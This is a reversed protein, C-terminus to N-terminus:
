KKKDKPLEPLLDARKYLKTMKLNAGDLKTDGVGTRYFEAGYLNSRSLDTRVLKSKRLSGQFLNIEKLDSDSLNSKTLRALRAKVGSLNTGTLDCEQLLAREITSGRFDSGSLDSKMWSARDAKTDTFNSETMASGQLIRSNHMDAGSFDIKEGKSELFAAERLTSRSFNAGTINTKLFVAKTLDSRSFDAGSIDASLCYIQSAKAEVARVKVLKAKELLTKVITAGTLNAGTLDAESMMARSLDAHGLDAGTFKAKQFVGKVLRADRLSAKSMDAEGALAKSLDVGDLKSGSLNAKQLIAKRLDAGTLDLGSLDVGKMNKGSLSLGKSYREIVDERSLPKLPTPDDPDIGAQVLLKKAWDPPGAEFKAKGEALRKTGEDFRKAADSLTKQTTKEVESLKKEIDPNMLGQDTLKKRVAAIQEGFKKQTDGYPNVGDPLSPAAEKMIKDLDHGKKALEKRIVDLGEKKKAEMLDMQPKMQATLDDKVKKVLAAVDITPILSAVAGPEMVDVDKPKSGADPAIGSKLADAVWQWLDVDAKKAEMVNKGEPLILPEAGACLKNWPDIDAGIKDMMTGAPYVVLFQPAKKIAGAAEKCPKASADKMAVVACFNGLEQHLLVAEMDNAVRIFPKGEAEGLAMATGKSGEIPTDAEISMLADLLAAPTMHVNQGAPLPRVTVHELSAGNFRPIVLGAPIVLADPDAGKGPTKLGWAARDFRAEDKAMGIWSRKLTYARFGLGRFATMLGPDNMLTDRCDELFRMGSEQWPDVPEKEYAKFIADVDIGGTKLKALEPNGYLKTLQDKLKKLNEVETKKFNNVKDPITALKAKAADLNKAAMAFGSTDIKTLHGFQAKAELLRKEGDALLKKQKDIIAISQVAVEAPTRLVKPAHGLNQAIQDNIQLPLDRLTDALNTLKKKAEEMQPTIDATLARDIRKKFQEYYREIAAPKEAMAESVIYLHPVDLAEDDKVEATGRSVVIGREAHPFLWVTDIHTLVEKFITEGAPKNVDELQNIFLRHHIGPLRSEIAAKEPHMGSVFFSENGTFFGEMQQDEPAANFYTWNMDDPYFPWREQFWKNDYTGLKKARQPWSFDLPAFGAPGPRDSPSGVLHRPDEINPLPHLEAGSSSLVPSIGRGVPNRDFGTGGFAREYTVPMETFPEPESVTLGMGAAKKWHRNGFVYLMKEVPGIRIGVQSAGRPKGDPPFCRGWALVEGKPKPMAMDLIADKGLEGQVFPWMDQEKLPNGPDKFDFFTMVTIALYYRNVLGFYNLLLGQDQEKIVKM